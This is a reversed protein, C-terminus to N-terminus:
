GFAKQALWTPLARGRFYTLIDGLRNFAFYDRAFRPFAVQLDLRRKLRRLDRQSMASVNTTANDASSPVVAANCWFDPKLRNADILQRVAPTGPFLMFPNVRVIDPDTEALFRQTQLLDDATEGPLGFMVYALSRLGAERTMHLAARNQEVRIGKGLAALMRASGSEIGFELQICGAKRMLRLNDPAVSDARVQASWRIRDALGRRLFEECLEAVRPRDALFNEDSFYLGDIGYDKILRDVAAAIYDARHFRHTKAHLRGEACFLCQGACGRSSELTATRLPICPITRPTRRTYYDMDLLDWAPLPLRDLDAVPVQGEAPRISGGHRVAVSPVQTLIAGNAIVEIAPEAEGILVADLEQVFQLTEKPCLTAHRGGALLIAVPLAARASRVCARFAGWSEMRTDFIVLDPRIQRLDDALREPARGSQDSPWHALPELIVATHGGQRLVAALSPLYVPMWLPAKLIPSREMLEVLAAIM